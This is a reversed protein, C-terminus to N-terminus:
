SCTLLNRRNKKASIKEMFYYAAARARSELEPSVGLLRNCHMHVLSNVISAKSNWLKSQNELESIKSSFKKLSPESFLIAEKLSTDSQTGEEAFLSFALEIGNKNYMRLGELWQKEYLLNQAAEKWENYFQFFIHMIVFSARIFDPFTNEKFSLLFTTSMSDAFFCEEALSICESGGYREVERHYTAVQFDEVDGREIMVAIWRGFEPFIKGNLVDIEAHIRVRLHFADDFYRIYFWKDIAYKKSLARMFPGLQDAIFGNADQESLFIKGFFWEHSPLYSRSETPIQETIPYLEKLKSDFRFAKNKVVPVVFECTHGSITSARYESFGVIKNKIFESIIIDFHFKLERNLLLHNDGQSLYVRKPVKYAEFFKLLAQQVIEPSADKDLNLFPYDCRWKAPSLIINQYFVRPIYASLEFPKLVFEELQSVQYQSLLLLFRVPPPMYLPNTMVSSSFYLEKRRKKSYIYVKNLDAGIFLDELDFDNESAEHYIMPLRTERLPEHISVNAARHTQPFFIPEIFLLHSFLSREEAILGQIKEIREKRWQYLFRGFSSGAQHSLGKVALYFQNQDIQQISDAQLEFYVELHPPLKEIEKSSLEPLKDVLYQIDVGKDLFDLSIFSQTSDIETNRLEDSILQQIFSQNLVESLPVLRDTGFKEIFYKHFKLLAPPLEKSRSFHCLLSVAKQVATQVNEHLSLGQDEYFTDVKLPNHIDSYQKQILEVIDPREIELFAWKFFIFDKSGKVKKFFEEPSSLFQCPNELESVLFKYGFLKWLYKAADKRKELSYNELFARELESYLVPEKALQIIKDFSSQRKISRIGHGIAKDQNLFIRGRKYILQPNVMVKLQFVIDKQDHAIQIIKHLCELSLFKRIHLNSIEFSISTKCGFQGLGVSSFLGFPTARSSMRILYKILGSIAKSNPNKKLARYLDPSAIAIAKQLFPQNQYFEFLETTDENESYAMCSFPLNAFRIMFFDASRYIDPRM